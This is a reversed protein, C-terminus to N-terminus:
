KGEGAVIDVSLWPCLFCRFLPPPPPCTRLCFLHGITVFYSWLYHFTLSLLAIIIRMVKILNDNQTKSQMSFRASSYFPCNKMTQWFHPPAHHVGGGWHRRNRRRQNADFQFLLTKILAKITSFRDIAAHLILLEQLDHALRRRLMM